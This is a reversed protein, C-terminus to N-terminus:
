NYAKLYELAGEKYLAGELLDRMNIPITEWPRHSYSFKKMNGTIPDFIVINLWSKDHTTRQIWHDGYVYLSNGFYGKIYNICEESKFCDPKFTNGIKQETVYHPITDPFIRKIEGYISISMTNQISSKDDEDWHVPYDCREIFPLIVIKRDSKNTIEKPDYVIKESMSLVDDIYFRVTVEGPILKKKLERGLLVRFSTYMNPRVTFDNMIESSVIEEQNNVIEFKLFHGKSTKVNGWSALLVLESDSEYITKMPLYATPSTSGMPTTALISFTKPSHGSSVCGTFIFVFAFLLIVVSIPTGSFGYPDVKFRSM